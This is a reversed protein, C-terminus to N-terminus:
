GQSVGDLTVVRAIDETSVNEDDLGSMLYSSLRLIRAAVGRVVLHQSSDDDSGPVLTPLARALADIEWVAQLCMRLRPSRDHQGPNFTDVNSSNEM